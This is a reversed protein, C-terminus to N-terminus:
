LRGEDTQSEVDAVKGRKVLCRWPAKQPGVGVTVTNNAESSETGLIVAKTNHTTKKVARLCAQKDRAPVDDSSQAPAPARSPAPEASEVTDQEVVQCIGNARNKGTYSVELSNGERAVSITVGAGRIESYNANRSVAAKKGNIYARGARDTEVSIDTPCKAAFYPVKALAAGAPLSLLMSLSVLRAFNKMSRKREDSAVM